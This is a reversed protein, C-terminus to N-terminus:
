SRGRMALEEFTGGEDLEEVVAARAKTRRTRDLVRRTALGIDSTEEGV